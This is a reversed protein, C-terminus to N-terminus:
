ERYSKYFSDALGLFNDTEQPSIGQFKSTGFMRTFASNIVAHSVISGSQSSSSQSSGGHPLDGFMVLQTCGQIIADYEQIKAQIATDAGAFEELAEKKTRYSKCLDLAQKVTKIADKDFSM